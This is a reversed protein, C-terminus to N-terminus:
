GKWPHILSVRGGPLYPSRHPRVECALLRWAEQARCMHDCGCAGVESNTEDNFHLSPSSAASKCMAKLEKESSSNWSDPRHLGVSLLCATSVTVLPLPSARCGMVRGPSTKLRECERVCM